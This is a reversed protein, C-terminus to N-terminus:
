QLQQQRLLLVKLRYGCIDLTVESFVPCASHSCLVYSGNKLEYKIPYPLAISTDLHFLITLLEM